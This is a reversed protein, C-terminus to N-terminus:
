SQSPTYVMASLPSAYMVVNLASSLFGIADIRMEGKLLLYTAILAAAFFGVNLFGTLMATKAQLLTLMIANSM